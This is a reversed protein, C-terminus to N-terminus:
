KKPPAVQEAPVNDVLAPTFSGGNAVLKVQYMDQILAHDGARVTLAGKPGQFTYDELSKVMAEVDGKGEKVAHVIMLAANFGDPTFLDPTGGAKTVAEVM